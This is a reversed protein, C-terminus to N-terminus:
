DHCDEPSRLGRAHQGDCDAIAFKAATCCNTGLKADVFNMAASHPSWGAAFTREGSPQQMDPAETLTKRSMLINRAIM